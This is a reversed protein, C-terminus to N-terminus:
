KTQQIAVSARSAQFLKFLDAEPPRNLVESMKNVGM